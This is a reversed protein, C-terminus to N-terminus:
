GRRREIASAVFAHFGRVGSALAPDEAGLARGAYARSARSVLAGWEPFRKSAWNASAAKSTVVDGTEWSYLLRCLNLVCYAPYEELHRTVYDLEGDLAADVERRTPPTLVASPRPGFLVAVRGALMHARHLAWSDDRLEPFLLLRPCAPRAADALLIYYGDLDTGLPPVERALQEHLALLRAREVDTPAAALIACFDVDGTHQTEPFTVAGYIYLAHLKEGLVECAGSAFAACLPRFESLVGAATGDDALVQRLVEGMCTRAVVRYAPRYAAAYAASHHIPAFGARRMRDAFLRVGAEPFTLMGERALQAAEALAMEVAEPTGRFERATRVFGEALLDPDLGRRVYPRLHVRVIGGEPSIPDVLPEDPGPGVEAMERVLWARARTEDIVAHESGMAAQHVLKYLDDLRWLPYRRAHEILIRRM